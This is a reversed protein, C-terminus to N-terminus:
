ELAVKGTPKGDVYAVAFDANTSTWTPVIMEDQEPSLDHAIKLECRDCQTEMEAVREQLERITALMDNGLEADDMMVKKLEQPDSMWQHPQNEPDCLARTLIDM